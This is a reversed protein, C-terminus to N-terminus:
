RFSPLDVSIAALAARPTDPYAADKPDQVLTTGGAKAVAALGAAGDYLKGTLIVAIVRSGFESAASRFLWDISPKSFVEKPADSLAIHGKEFGVHKGPKAVYIKGPVVPDGEEGFRVKHSDGDSLTQDLISQTGTHQVICVPARLPSDLGKIIGRLTSIGGASAGIVIIPYNHSEM